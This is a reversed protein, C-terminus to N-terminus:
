DDQSHLTMRHELLEVEPQREIFRAVELMVKKLQYGEGAVASVALTARQRLDQHDVEAVAVNFKGRLGATISKVVHRKDKLSDAMPIRLDFSSLAVLM